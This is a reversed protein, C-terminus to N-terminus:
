LIVKIGVVNKFVKIGYKPIIKATIEIKHHM